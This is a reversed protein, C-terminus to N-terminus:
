LVELLLKMICVSWSRRKLLQGSSDGHDKVCTCTKLFILVVTLHFQMDFASRKRCNVALCWSKGKKGYKVSSSFKIGLYRSLARVSETKVECVDLRSNCSFTGTFSKPLVTGQAFYQQLYLLYHRWKTAIIVGFDNCGQDYCIKM